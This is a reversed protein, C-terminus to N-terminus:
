SAPRVRLPGARRHAPPARQPRQGRCLPPNPLLPRTRLPARPPAARCRPFPFFWLLAVRPLFFGGGCPSDPCGAGVERGLGIGRGSCGGHAGGGGGGGAGAGSRWSCGRGGGSTGGGCGGIRAVDPLGLPSCRCCLAPL